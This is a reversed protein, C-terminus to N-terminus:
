CAQESWGRQLSGPGLLPSDCLAQVRATHGRATRREEPRLKRMPLSPIGGVECPQVLARGPTVLGPFDSPGEQAGLTVSM